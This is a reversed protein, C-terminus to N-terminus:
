FVRETHRTAESCHQVREVASGCNVVVIVSESVHKVTLAEAHAKREIVLMNLLMHPAPTVPSYFFCFVVFFM